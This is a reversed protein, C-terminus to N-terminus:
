TEKGVGASGQWGEWWDGSGGKGRDAKHLSDNQCM